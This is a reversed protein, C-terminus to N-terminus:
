HEEGSISHVLSDIYWHIILYAMYMCVYHLLCPQLCSSVLTETCAMHEDAVCTGHCNDMRRTGSMANNVYHSAEL